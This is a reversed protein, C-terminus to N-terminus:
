SHNPVQSSAHLLRPRCVYHVLLSFCMLSSFTVPFLAVVVFFFLVMECKYRVESVFQTEPCKIRM